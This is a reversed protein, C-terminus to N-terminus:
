CVYFSVVRQIGIGGLCVSKFVLLSCGFFLPDQQFDHHATFVVSQNVLLIMTYRALSFYKM